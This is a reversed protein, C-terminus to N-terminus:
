VRNETKYSTLVEITKVCFIDHIYKLKIQFRLCLSNHLLCRRLKARSSAFSDKYMLILFVKRRGSGRIM